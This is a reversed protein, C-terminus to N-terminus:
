IEESVVGNGVRGYYEERSNITREFVNLCGILYNSLIYDPTNSNNERSYRNLLSSLDRHFQTEKPVIEYLEDFVGKHWNNLQVMCDSIIDDINTKYITADQLEDDKYEKIPPLIEVIEYFLDIPKNKWNFFNGDFEGYSIRFTGSLLCEADLKYSIGDVMLMKPLTKECIEIFRKEEQLTM